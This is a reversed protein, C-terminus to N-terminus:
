NITRRNLNIMSKKELKTFVGEENDLSFLDKIKCSKKFIIMVIKM